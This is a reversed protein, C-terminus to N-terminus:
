WGGKDAEGSDGVWSTNNNDKSQDTNDGWGGQGSFNATDNGWEGGGQNDASNNKNSEGGSDGGHDNKDQDNPSQGGENGENENEWANGGSDDNVWANGGSGNDNKGWEDLKENAANLNPQYGASDQSTKMTLKEDAVESAALREEVLLHILEDKTLSALRDQLEGKTEDITLGCMKSIVAMERYYFVFHAYPDDVTDMYHPVSTKHIYETPSPLGVGHVSSHVEAVNARRPEEEIITSPRKRHSQDIKSKSSAPAPTTPKSIPKFTGASLPTTAKSINSQAKTSKADLKAAQAKAREANFEAARRKISESRSPKQKEGLPPSWAGPGFAITDAVKDSEGRHSANSPAWSGLPSKPTSKVSKTSPAKFVTGKAVNLSNTPTLISPHRFSRNQAKPSKSEHMPSGADYATKSRTEKTLKTKSLTKAEGADPSRSRTSKFSGPGSNVKQGNGVDWSNTQAAINSTGWKGGQVDDKATNDWNDHQDNENAANGWDNRHDDNSTDPHGWGNDQDGKSENTEANWGHDQVNSDYTKRATDWGNGQNNGGKEMDVWSADNERTSSVIVGQGSQNDDKQIVDGRNWRKTHESGHTQRSVNSSSRLNNEKSRNNLRGESATTGPEKEPEWTWNNITHWQDDTQAAGIGGWTEDPTYSGTSGKPAKTKVPLNGRGLRYSKHSIAAVRTEKKPQNTDSSGGGRLQLRPKEARTIEHSGGLLAHDKGLCFLREGSRFQSPDEKRSEKDRRLSRGRDSKPPSDGGGRLRLVPTSRDKAREISRYSRGHNRPPPSNGAGDFMAGTMLPVEQDDM